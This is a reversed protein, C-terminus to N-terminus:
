KEYSKVTMQVSKKKMLACLLDAVYAHHILDILYKSGLVLYIVIKLIVIFYEIKKKTEENTWILMWETM